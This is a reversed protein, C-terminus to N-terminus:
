IKEWLKENAQQYIGYTDEIIEAPVKFATMTSKFARRESAKFNLLTDDLDFLFNSYLM